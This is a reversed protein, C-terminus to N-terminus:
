WRGIDPIAQWVPPFDGSLAGRAFTPLCHAERKSDQLCWIVSDEFMLGLGLRRRQPPTTLRLSFDVSGGLSILPLFTKRAAELLQESNTTLSCLAGAAIYHECLPTEVNKHLFGRRSM